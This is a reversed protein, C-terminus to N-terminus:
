RIAKATKCSGNILSTYTIVTPTVGGECMERYVNLASNMAGELGDIVINITYGTPIKKADVMDDFVNFAREANGNRFYGNMLISYTFVTPELGRQTMELFENNACDMDGITCYGHIMNNYSFKLFGRVLHNVIFEDPLIGMRKMKTYLEYAREMNGNKCCCGIVTAHTIRNPILGDQMIMNFLDLAADLKGQACYGKMLSTAVVLDISEGSSVMEDKLRLAEVMNGQKVCAGIVSTYTRASPVWGMERMEALLVLALSSEPTKCVAGIAVDYLAADAAIGRGRAKRFYEEPKGEKLCARMMVNLTACDGGVGREVMKGYLDRAEEFMNRRVLATLVINMYEVGAGAYIELEVMRNFCDVADGIRNARVYSNLLYSFVWSDFDFGFREACDLLRDLLVAPPPPGSDGSVYRNLLTKARGRTEPFGM